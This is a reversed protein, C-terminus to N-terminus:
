SEAGRPSDQRRELLLVVQGNGPAGGEKANSALAAMLQEFPLKADVPLLQKQMKPTGVGGLMLQWTPYSMGMTVATTGRLVDGVRVGGGAASGGDLLEVVRVVNPMNPSPDPNPEEELLLGLPMDLRACLLSSDTPELPELALELPGPAMDVDVLRIGGWSLRQMGEQLMLIEDVQAEARETKTLPALRDAAQEGFLDKLNQRRQVKDDDIPEGKGTKFQCRPQSHRVTATARLQLASSTAVLSSLAVLSLM